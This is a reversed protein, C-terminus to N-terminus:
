LNDKRWKAISLRTIESKLIELQRKGKNYLVILEYIDTSEDVHDLKEQMLKRGKESELYLDFRSEVEWCNDCLGTGIFRTPKHCVKCPVEKDPCWDGMNPYKKTDAECKGDATVYICGKCRKNEENWHKPEDSM